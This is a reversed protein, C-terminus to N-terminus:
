YKRIKGSTGPLLFRFSRAIVPWFLLLFVMLSGIFFYHNVPGAVLPTPADGLAHLGIAVFLNGTRLYVLSLFIGAITLLVMWMLLSYGTIGEASLRPIHLLAFFISSVVMAAIFPYPKRGKSTDFKKALQILLFARITLEECLGTGLYHQIFNGLVHGTGLRQWDPHLMLQSGTLLAAILMMLQATLWVAVIVILGMLLKSGVLGIDQWRLRGWWIIVLFIFLEIWCLILHETILGRSWQYIGNVWQNFLIWGNLFNRILDVGAGVFGVFLALVAWSSQRIRLFFHVRLFPILIHYIGRM